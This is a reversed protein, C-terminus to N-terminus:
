KLKIFRYAPSSSPNRSVFSMSPAVVNILKPMSVSQAVNPAGLFWQKPKLAFLPKWVCLLEDGANLECQLDLEETPNFRDFAFFDSSPARFYNM